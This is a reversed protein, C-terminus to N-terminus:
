DRKKCDSEERQFAPLTMGQGALENCFEAMGSSNMWYIFDVSNWDKDDDYFESFGESFFEWDDIDDFKYWEGAYWNRALGIHLSREIFSINWFPKIGIIRLDPLWTKAERQLRKQPNSTKGIKFLEGSQVVYVWGPDRREVGFIELNPRFRTQDM